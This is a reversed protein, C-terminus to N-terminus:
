DHSAEKPATVPSEDTVSAAAGVMALVAFAFTFGAAFLTTVWAARALDWGAGALVFVIVVVAAASIAVRGPGRAILTLLSRM